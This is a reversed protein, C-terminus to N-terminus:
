EMNILGMEVVHRIFKDYPLAKTMIDAVNAKTPVYSLKILGDEIYQRIFHYHIDIHKTRAHFQDNKALTISGQNDGHLDITHAQGILEDIFKRLWIAEKAAHTLAVYEAETTSLTVINERKSSWSTLGGAIFFLYGMIPSRGETSMGDADSYGIFSMNKGGLVLWLDKTGQLYQCIRKLANWHGLGPNSSFKLVSNNACTIDPRTAIAAYNTSGGLERFPKTAMLASEESFEKPCMESTLQVNPNAPVKLSKADAFGFKKLIATIYARQTLMITCLKRDRKVEIGLLWHLPGM